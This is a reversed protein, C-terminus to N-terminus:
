HFASKVEPKLLVVLAWIGIPLGLLCCPTVCPIMALVTATMALGYNQAQKMKLAGVFMVAAIALGVFNSIVGGIGSTMELLKEVEPNGVPGFRSMGAGALHMALGIASFIFNLGAVIMLVIAPGQLQSTAPPQPAAQLLGPPPAAGPAPVPQPSLALTFEAFSALPKWDVSGEAQVLTQGNVRGDAIWQRIQEASVPGYEKKDVGIIKYM